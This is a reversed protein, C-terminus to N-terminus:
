WDLSMFLNNLSESLTPHAFASDRITTYPIKGMMAMQLVSMIEGGEIGLVACGLIQHTDADIIAKMFGRTEGMELARAVYTMPIKAVLINKGQAKAESESLGVRGLQPDIFMVYPVLRDKISVDGGDLLNKKIVRYDDYSIHTFAPGGKADGIVYIGPVNTELKDNVPIHGRQNVEVGASKLNLMDTNPTRGVAVLLHTGSISKEGDSTKLTLEIKDGNQQVKVAESNLLISMGEGELINKIEDAVDPDERTLQSGRQVVTVKSGFRRFMQGFELGIYGGGLVILHEPVDGLEMISANDLYPVSEIGEIPPTFSRTGTNIFIKESSLQVTGGDNLAVEVTQPGVFRAEGRIVDLDEIGNLRRESGGSFDNVIDRKRERIKGLDIKISGTNVGYDAARNALHAVRASAVMTKTPTCGVNVCTGGIPGKEIIATKWGAAPLDKALPYGGQGTGIIIADYTQINTETM